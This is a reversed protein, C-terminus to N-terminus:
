PRYLTTNGRRRRLHIHPLGSCLVTEVTEKAISPKNQKWHARLIYGDLRLIDQELRAALLHMAGVMGLFFILM